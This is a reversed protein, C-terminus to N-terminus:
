VRLSDVMLSDIVMVVMQLGCWLFDMIGVTDTTATPDAIHTIVRIVGIPIVATAMGHIGTAGGRTVGAGALGGGFTTTTIFAELDRM